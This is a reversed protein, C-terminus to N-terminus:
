PTGCIFGNYWSSIKSWNIEVLNNTERGWTVIDFKVGDTGIDLDRVLMFHGGFVTFFAGDRGGTGVAERALNGAARMVVTNGNTLANKMKWLNPQMASKAFAERHSEILAGSMRWSAHSHDEVNSYGSAKMWNVIDGSLSMDELVRNTTVSRYAFINDSDRLSALAIYDADRMTGANPRKKLLNSGKRIKVKLNGITGKRTEALGIVFEAYGEPNDRALGHMFAAPGCIPHDRQEILKFDAIRIILQLAILERRFHKWPLASTRHLFGGTYGNGAPAGVIKVLAQVQAFTPNWYDTLLDYFLEVDHVSPNVDVIKATRLLYDAKGANTQYPWLNANTTEVTPM